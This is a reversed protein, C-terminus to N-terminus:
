DLLYAFYRLEIATRNLGDRALKKLYSDVDYPPKTLSNRHESAARCFAEPNALLIPALFDDPKLPMIGHAALADAPFHKLNHTLIVDCSGQIAAAAVHRDKEDIDTLSDILHEYDTVLGHCFFKDMRALTHAEFHSHDIDPRIKRITGILERRIDPSWKLRYLDTEAVRLLIDRMGAPQLINTDAIATPLPTNTM